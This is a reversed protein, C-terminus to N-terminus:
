ADGVALPCARCASVRGLLRLTVIAALNTKQGNGTVVLFSPQSLSAQCGDLATM